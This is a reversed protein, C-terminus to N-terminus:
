PGTLQWATTIKRGDSLAVLLGSATLTSANIAYSVTEIGCNPYTIGILTPTVVTVTGPIGCMGTTATGAGFDIQLNYTGHNGTGPDDLTVTGTWLGALQPPPTTLHWTSPIVRGGSHATLTGSASLANGSRIYTVLDVGCGAYDIQIQTAM